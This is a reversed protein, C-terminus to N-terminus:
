YIMRGRGNKRGNIFYGEYFHRDKVVEVGSGNREIKGDENISVNGFYFDKNHYWIAAKTATPMLSFVICNKYKKISIIAAKTLHPMFHRFIKEGAETLEQKTSGKNINIEPFGELIRIKQKIEQKQPLELQSNISFLKNNSSATSQMGNKFRSYHTGAKKTRYNKMYSSFKNSDEEIAPM